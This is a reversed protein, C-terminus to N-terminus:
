RSSRLSNAYRLLRAFGTTRVRTRHADARLGLQWARLLDEAEIIGVWRDNHDLVALEREGSEAMLDAAARVRSDEAISLRPRARQPALPTVIKSVPILELPHVAYDRSVHTGRRALKETLISRPVFLVTFATAAICGVFVEPAITWAHTTELAFLTGMFPARMTGGMLAAMGVIAWLSADHGPIAIALLTGLAAGIMLLPALVGGSTGSSLSLIWITIKVVIIGAVMGIALQANAMAAITPYGVGLAAPVFWGGIGVALGGITPWWMWHIPLKHYADEAIYVLRTMGMSVIGGCLGVLLAWLLLPPSQVHSITSIFPPQPSILYLRVAAAVFSALAVPIYSRPRWEFLLLEVAILVSAIPAGFTASMGAAAGAVLLVRRELASLHLYQAFLSGFAGGTMIIPGEAGFPGGTGITIASAIPKFFAVRAQIVSDRELISQIAEPIGHGRIKDSGFRAILGVLLGGLVPIAIAIAGWHQPDPQVLSNGFRGLYAIHTIEGVLWLLLKAALAGVIGVVIALSSLISFRTRDISFDGLARFSASALM